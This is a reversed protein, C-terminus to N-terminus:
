NQPARPLTLSWLCSARPDKGQTDWSSSGTERQQVCPHLEQCVEEGVVKASPDGLWQWGGWSRRAEGKELGILLTFLTGVARIDHLGPCAPYPTFSPCAPKNTERHCHRTPLWGAWGSVQSAGAEAGLCLNYRHKVTDVLDKRRRGRKQFKM